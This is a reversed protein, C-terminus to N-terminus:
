ILEVNYVALAYVLASNVGNTMGTALAQWSTGNYAAINNAALGGAHDFSGGVILLPPQPGAGDPDWTALSYVNAPGSMVPRSRWDACQAAALTPWMASCLAVAFSAYRYTTM